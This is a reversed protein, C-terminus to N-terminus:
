ATNKHLKERFRLQKDLYKEAADETAFSANLVNDDLRVRWRGQEQFVEDGFDRPPRVELPKATMHYKECACKYVRIPMHQQRGNQWIHRMAQNALMWTTYARKSPTPCLPSTRITMLIAVDYPVYFPPPPQPVEEVM